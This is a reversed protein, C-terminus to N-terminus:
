CWWNTQQDAWYRVANDDANCAGALSNMSQVDGKNTAMIQAMLWQNQETENKLLVIDGVKCNRTSINWKTGTQLDFLVM